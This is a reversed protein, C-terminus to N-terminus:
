YKEFAVFMGICLDPLPPPMKDNRASLTKDNINLAALGDPLVNTEKTTLSTISLLVGM